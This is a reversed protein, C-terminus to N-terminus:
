AISSRVCFSYGWGAEFNSPSYFKFVFRRLPIALTPEPDSSTSQQTRANALRRAIRHAALVTNLSGIKTECQESEYFSLDSYKGLACRRDFSIHAQRTWPPLSVVVLETVGRSHPHSASEHCTTLQRIRMLFDIHPLPFADDFLAGAAFAAEFRYKILVESENFLKLPEVEKTFSTSDMNLIRLHGPHAFPILRTRVANRESSTMQSVSLYAPVSARICAWRVLARWMEAESAGLEEQKVINLVVPLSLECFEDRALVDRSHWVIYELLETVLSTLQHQMARELFPLVTENTSAAQIHVMALRSLHVLGLANSAAIVDFVNEGTLHIRGTYVFRLISGLTLASVTPLSLPLVARAERPWVSLNDPHKALFAQIPPELVPCRCALISSHSHFRTGDAAILVVDSTNRDDRLRAMDALLTDTGGTYDLFAPMEPEGSTPNM